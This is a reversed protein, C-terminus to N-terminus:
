LQLVISTTRNKVHLHSLVTRCPVPFVDTVMNGMLSNQHQKSYPTIVLELISSYLIMSTVLEAKVGEGKKCM